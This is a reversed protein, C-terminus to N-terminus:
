HDRHGLLVHWLQGCGGNMSRISGREFGPETRARRGEGVCLLPVYLPVKRWVLSLVRGEKGSEQWWGDLDPWPLLISTTVCVWNMVEPSVGTALVGKM